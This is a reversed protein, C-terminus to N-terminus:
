DEYMGLWGSAVNRGVVPRTCSITRFTPRRFAHLRTDLLGHVVDSSKSILGQTYTDANADPIPYTSRGRRRVGVKLLADRFGLITSALNYCDQPSTTRNEVLLHKNVLMLVCDFDQFLHTTDEPWREGERPKMVEVLRKMLDALRSQSGKVEQIIAALRLACSRSYDRESSTPPAETEIFALFNRPKKRKLLPRPDRQLSAV